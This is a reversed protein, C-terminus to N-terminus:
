QNLCAQIQPDCTTNLCSYCADTPDELGNCANGCEASCGTVCVCDIFDNYLSYSSPPGDDSCPIESSVGTIFDSCSSCGSSPPPPEPLDPPSSSVDATCADIAGTCSNEICWMCADSAVDTNGVCADGCEAGCENTCICDVLGDLLEASSPPGNDTCPAVGIGSIAGNCSACSGDASSQVGQAQIVDSVMKNPLTSDPTGQAEGPGGTVTVSTCAGASALVLLGLVHHWTKMFTRKELFVFKTEFIRHSM